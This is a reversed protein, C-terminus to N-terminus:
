SLVLRVPDGVRITGGTTVSTYMRSWGPHLTHSMRRFNRDRFWAANKSCPTADFTVPAVVSEGFLLTTGPVVQDWDIGAVTINEGAYGPAIPHGEDQLAEIVELSWVCLAQEPHGHHRTDAQKDDVIGRLGV